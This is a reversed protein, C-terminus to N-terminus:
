DAKLGSEREYFIDQFKISKNEQNKGPNKNKLSLNMEVM